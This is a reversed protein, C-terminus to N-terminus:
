PLQVYPALFTRASETDTRYSVNTFWMPLVWM